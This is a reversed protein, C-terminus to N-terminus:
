AQLHPRSKTDERDAEDVLGKAEETPVLALRM